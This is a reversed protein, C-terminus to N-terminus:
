DRGKELFALIQKMDQWVLKKGSPNRLLYAPHFTPMITINDLDFFKGRMRSISDGRDLITQSAFKGLTCVIKPNIIKLLKKLYGQCAIVEEPLPNRNGPPRCRLVNTIYVDERSLNMAQIIKTLLQGAAGVFPKGVLDEDRGPAEGVFVLDANINGEGFVSNTRLESLSCDTCNSVQEILVKLQSQKDIKESKNNSPIECSFWLECELVNRIAEIKDAIERVCDKGSGM